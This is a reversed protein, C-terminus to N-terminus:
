TISSLASPMDAENERTAWCPFPFRVPIPYPVSPQSVIVQGPRLLTSREQLRLLWNNTRSGAEVPDLRGAAKISANGVIEPAVLSSAQQCGVLVLGLSRGRQAIDVLTDKIPSNGDKPAYRNLEDLVVVMTGKEGTEKRAHIDQMVAGVVFKRPIDSLRHIDVVTVKRSYPDIERANVRILHKLQSTAGRLRRMFAGITGLHTSRPVWRSSEEDSELKESIFDTLEELNTVTRNSNGFQVAGGAVPRHDRQLRTKIHGALHGLNGSDQHDNTGVLFGLMGKKCFDAPTWSFPQIVDMRCTTYPNSPARPDPPAWYGVNPFPGIREGPFLTQWQVRAEDTLKRNPRDLWLLDEGKVNWVLVRLRNYWGDRPAAYLLSRLLFMAYSTKTAIGSMGSISVHAGHDGNFFGLDIPVSGGDRHFGMPFTHRMTDMYLARRRHEGAARQVNQASNPAVPVDPMHRLVKVSATRVPESLHGGGAAVHRTDAAGEAAEDVSATDVVVGYTDVPEGGPIRTRTHVLDDDALFQGDDLYVNYSLSKAEFNAQVKGVTHQNDSNM